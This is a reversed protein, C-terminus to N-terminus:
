QGMYCLLRFLPCTPTQDYEISDLNILASAYFLEVFVCCGFSYSCDTHPLLSHLEWTLSLPCLAQTSTLIMTDMAAVSKIEVCCAIEWNVHFAATRLTDQDTIPKLKPADCGSSIMRCSLPIWRYCPLDACQCAPSMECPSPASLAPSESQNELWRKLLRLPM